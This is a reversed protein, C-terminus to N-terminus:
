EPWRKVAAQDSYEHRELRVPAPTSYKWPPLKRTYYSLQVHASLFHRIQNRRPFCSLVACGRALWGEVLHFIKLSVLEPAMLALVKFSISGSVDFRGTRVTDIDRFIAVDKQNGLVCSHAEVLGESLTEVKVAVSSFRTLMKRELFRRLRATM